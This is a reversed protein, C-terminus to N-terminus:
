EGIIKLFEELQDESLIYINDGTREYGDAVFYTKQGVTVRYVNEANGHASERDSPAYSEDSRICLASDILALLREARADNEGICIETYNEGAHSANEDASGAPQMAIALVIGIYAVAFFLPACMLARAARKFHRRRLSMQEERRRYVEARFEENTRMAM